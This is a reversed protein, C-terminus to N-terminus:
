RSNAERAWAQAIITEAVARGADTIRWATARIPHGGRTMFGFRVLAEASGPMDLQWGGPAHHAELLCKRQLWNMGWQDVRM